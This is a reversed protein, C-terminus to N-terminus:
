INCRTQLTGIDSFEISQADEVLTVNDSKTIDEYLSPSVLIENLHLTSKIIAL